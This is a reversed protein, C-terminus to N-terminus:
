AQCVARHPEDAQGLLVDIQDAADDPDYPKAIFLAGAVIDPASRGSTLVIPIAPRLQRALVALLAGDMEGPLNVDSFLLDARAGTTLYSLAKEASAFGMVEHGRESLVEAMMMAILPEDEVMIITSPVVRGPSIRSPM